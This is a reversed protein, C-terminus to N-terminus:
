KITIGAKRNQKKWYRNYVWGNGRGAPLAQVRDLWQGTFRGADSFAATSYATRADGNTQEAGAIWQSEIRDRDESYVKLRRDHDRLVSRHLSEHHWWLARPDHMAGPSPGIDPLGGGEIWVPKFLGTCPAATGTAWFTAQNRDLHAILSGTTQFNRALANAAHACLRNGLFHGGVRYEGEGHSRLISIAKAVGLKGRHRDLLDMATAQRTRYASFTTFFWDSYCRAFHFNEGKKLWGV